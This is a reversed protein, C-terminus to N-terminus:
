DTEFESRPLNSQRIISMLTGKKIERHDPIIVTFTKNGERKQMVIHSGKRRIEEFGNRKLINCVDRGSLCKLRPL